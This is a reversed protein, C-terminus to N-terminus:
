KGERLVDERSFLFSDLDAELYAANDEGCLVDKRSLLVSDM